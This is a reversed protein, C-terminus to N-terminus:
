SSAIEGELEQHAGNLVDEVGKPDANGIMTDMARQTIRDVSNFYAPAAVARATTLAKFFLPASKPVALFDPDKAVEAYMPIQQGIDTLEKVTQMSILTKIAQLALDPNKSQPSIGWGGEGFVTTQTEKKPWLVIDFDTFGGKVWGTVPWRGAATMAFKGAAFQDYVNLGIPDPSVGHEHVLSHVFKAAEIMKPNNLNSHAYDDTVPYTGNTLWWPHFAFNFWPMGFGYVKSDGSGTTLKKATALFDDWTWDPKPPELGADKFIKTNYHIVMTQTGNPIEYLKGDVTLGEKLQAPLQDVLAKIEPDGNILDDLPLLLGKSVSLRLGEIAINIIDPPNGGAIQTVLKDAYDSWSSVPVINDTVGVNPYISKFRDFAAGYAKAEDPNGWNYTTLTATVDKAPAVAFSPSVGLLGALGTSGALAATGTLFTRRSFTM